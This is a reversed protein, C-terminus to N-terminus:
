PTVEATEVEITFSAELTALEGYTWQVPVQLTGHTPAIDTDEVGTPDITSEPVNSIGYHASHNFGSSFQNKPVTHRRDGTWLGWVGNVCAGFSFSTQDTLAMGYWYNGYRTLLFASGQTDGATEIGTIGITSGSDYIGLDGGYYAYYPAWAWGGRINCVVEIANITRNEDSWTIGDGGTIEATELPLTLESIPIIGGPHEDDEWPMGTPLLARVVLGDYQIDEGDLYDLKNPLSMIQLTVPKNEWVIVNFTDEFTTGSEDIYQVPITQISAGPYEQSPTTPDYVAKKVPLTLAEFPIKGDLWQGGNTWPVQTAASRESQYGLVLLRAYSIDKGELYQTFSGNYAVIYKLPIKTYDISYNGGTSGSVSPTTPTYGDITPADVEWTDGEPYVETEQGLPVDDATFTVRVIQIPLEDPYANVTLRAKAQQGFTFTCQRVVGCYILDEDAYVRVVDGPQVDGNDIIEATVEMRNQYLAGILSFTPQQYENNLLSVGSIKVESGGPADEDPNVYGHTIYDWYYTTGGEDTGSEKNPAETTSITGVLEVYVAYVPDGLQTTPKWYTKKYPLLAGQTLDHNSFDPLAHFVLGNCFSQQVWAGMALCLWLLRERATQEPAFGNINISALETPLTYPVISFYGSKPLGSFLDYVAAGATTNIREAGVTWWDLLGLPSQAEVRLTDKNIRQVKTIKFKAFLTDVDNKLSILWGRELTDQTIIDVTLMDVPLSNLKIDVEPSFDVRAIRTYTVDGEPDHYIIKV